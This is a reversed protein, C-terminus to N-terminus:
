FQLCARTRPIRYAALHNIHAIPRSPLTRLDLQRLLPQSFLLFFYKLLGRVLAEAEEVTIDVAIWGKNESHVIRGDHIGFDTLWNMVNAVTEEEPAFM